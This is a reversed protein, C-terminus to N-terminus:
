LTVKRSIRLIQVTTHQLQRQSLAVCTFLFCAGLLLITNFGWFKGLMYLICIISVYLNFMFFLTTIPRCRAIQFLTLLRNARIMTLLVAMFVLGFSVYFAIAHIGGQKVRHGASLLPFAAAICFLMLMSLARTMLLGRNSDDSSHSVTSHTM